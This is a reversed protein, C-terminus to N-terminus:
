NGKLAVIIPSPDTYSKWRVIKGNRITLWQIFEIEFELGTEKVRSREHIVGAAEEGEVIMKVLEELQVEVLGTFVQFSKRVAEVGHYTGIWPMIDNVGPVITYNIWEVNEDVCSFATAPDGGTLATFWKHAVEYTQKESM